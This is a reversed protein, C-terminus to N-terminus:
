GMVADKTRRAIKPMLHLIQTRNWSTPFARENGSAITPSLMNWSRALVLGYLGLALHMISALLM